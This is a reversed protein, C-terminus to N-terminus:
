WQDVFAEGEDVVEFCSNYKKWNSKEGATFFLYLYGDKFIIDPVSGKFTEFQSIPSWNEGDDGSAIAVKHNTPTNCDDSISEDCYHYAM